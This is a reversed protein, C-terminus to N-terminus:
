IKIYLTTYSTAGKDDTVVLKVTYEGEYKYVHEVVGSKYEGDGFDWYYKQGVYATAPGAAKAVPPYNIAAAVCKAESTMKGYDCHFNDKVEYGDNCKPVCYYSHGLWKPCDGLSGYAPAYVECDKMLIEIYLTTYDTAGDDDTVVLKVTYNGPVKYAREVVPGSGYGGDGFDWYWKAVYGDKDFSMKGNFEVKEYIYAKAPGTAKAVPPYNIAVCKAESTIKGYDCYFKGQVEYGLNCTPVCYYGHGLWKPCDGLVGYAPPYVECDKNLIKVYITTSGKADKDDTVTLTVKYVGAYKYVHYVVEGSDYTGDGFDWQWKVVYGDKDYSKKGDLKINDDVYATMPALAMAVPPFNTYVPPVFIPPIVPRVPPIYSSPPYPKPICIFGTLKGDDCRYKGDKTPEYGSNCLPTCLKGHEMYRPCDGLSGYAPTYVDCGKYGKGWSAVYSASGISLLLSGVLLASFMLVEKQFYTFDKGINWDPWIMLNATTRFNRKFFMQCNEERRSQSVLLRRSRTVCCVEVLHCVINGSKLICDKVCHFLFASMAQKPPQKRCARLNVRPNIWREMKPTAKPM